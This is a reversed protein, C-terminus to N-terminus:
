GESVLNHDFDFGQGWGWGVNWSGRCVRAGKEGYKSRAISPSIKERSDCEAM